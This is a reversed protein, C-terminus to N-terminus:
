DDQGETYHIIHEETYYIIHLAEHGTAREFAEPVTEGPKVDILLFTGAGSYNGGSYNLDYEVHAKTTM